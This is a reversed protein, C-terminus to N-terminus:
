EDLFFDVTIQGREPAEIEKIKPRLREHWAILRHKGPPVESITYVGRRDPMAYYPNQLVLIFGSMEPHVNCLITIVGPKDFVLKKTVGAPYTGLNFKMLKSPSFVNHRTSDSNPFDITTGALIPLIHPVFTMRVQDLIVPKAPPSFTKGEVREIYVVVNELGKGGLVKVTGKVDGAGVVKTLFLIAVVALATAKLPNMKM